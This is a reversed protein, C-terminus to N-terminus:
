VVTEIVLRNYFFVKDARHLADAFAAEPCLKDRLSEPSSRDVFLNWYLLRAGREGRSALQGILEHAQTESLYEFINSLNFVDFKPGTSRSLYGDLSECHWELRDLNGRIIEFNEERWAVPLATTHRGWIMWQLYPNLSPDNEVLVQSVRQRLREAIGGAAYRFYAPDRGFTAMIKRSFFMRFILRWRWTDWHQQYFQRRDDVSRLEFLRRRNGEWQTMSLVYKRFFGLYSELKGINGIGRPILARLNDWFRQGAGSLLPRCRQYLADRRHSPISGMMELFETHSLARFAAVRLELCFSQAPSLDVAIVRGPSRTLLALTNDGASTISLCVDGPRVKLGALLIEADEWCQAYRIGFFRGARPIKGSV